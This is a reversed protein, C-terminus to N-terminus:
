SPKRKLRQSTCRQKDTEFSCTTRSAVHRERQLCSEMGLTLAFRGFPAFPLPRSLATSDSSNDAYSSKVQLYCSVGASEQTLVVSKGFATSVKQADPTVPDQHLDALTWAGNFIFIVLFIILWYFLFAPTALLQGTGDGVERSREGV